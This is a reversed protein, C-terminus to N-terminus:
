GTRKRARAKKTGLSRAATALLVLGAVAEGRLRAPLAHLLREVRDAAQPSRSSVAAEGRPTLRISRERRNHGFGVSVLGLHRALDTARAGRADQIHALVGTERDTLDVGRGRTRHVAHCAFWVQPYARQVQRVLDNIPM